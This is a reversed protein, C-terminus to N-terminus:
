IYHSIHMTYPLHCGFLNTSYTSIVSTIWRPHRLNSQWSRKANFLTTNLKAAKTNNAMHEVIDNRKFYITTGLRTYPLVRTTRLHQLKSLSIGLLRSVESSKLYEKNQDVKPKDSLLSKLEEFLELKFQHLDDATIVQTPMLSPFKTHHLPPTFGFAFCTIYM